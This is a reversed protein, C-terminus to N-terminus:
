SRSIGGKVNKMRQFKTYGKPTIPFLASRFDPATLIHTIVMLFVRVTVQSLNKGGIHRMTVWLMPM